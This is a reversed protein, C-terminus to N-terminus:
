TGAGAGTRGASSRSPRLGAWRSATSHVWPGSSTRAPAPEPLVRTSVMRMAWMIASSPTRGQCTRAMVKVLLAAASIRSRRPARSGPPVRPMHTQVKWAMHTRMSRSSGSAM